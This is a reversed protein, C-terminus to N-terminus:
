AEAGYTCHHWCRGDEEGDNARSPGPTTSRSRQRSNSREYTRNRQGNNEHQLKAMQRALKEVQATLKSLGDDDSSKKAVNTAPRNSAAAINSSTSAGANVASIQETSAGVRFTEMVSDALEALATLPQTVAALCTQVQIPLRNMWLVKLLREDQQEGGIRRLDNLLHSPKRDGLQLGSVFQQARRQESETFNRIVANKVANYKSAPPEPPNRVVDYIQQLLSADLAAIVTSFRTGDSTIRNVGFWHNLQLFWLEINDRVIKPMPLRVLTAAHVENQPGDGIIEPPNVNPPPNADAEGPGDNNPPNPPNSM